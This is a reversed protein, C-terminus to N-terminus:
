SIAIIVYAAPENKDTKWGLATTVVELASMSRLYSTTGLKVLSLKNLFGVM